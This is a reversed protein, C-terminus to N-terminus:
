SFLAVLMGGVLLVAVAVEIGLTIKALVSLEGLSEFLKRLGRM